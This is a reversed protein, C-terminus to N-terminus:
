MGVLLTHPDPEEVGEGASSRTLRKLNLSTNTPASHTHIENHNKIQMKGFSIVYAKEHIQKDDM